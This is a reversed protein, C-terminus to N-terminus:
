TFVLALILMAIVIGAWVLAGGNAAWWPTVPTRGATERAIETPSRYHWWGPCERRLCHGFNEITSATTRNPCYPCRVTDESM